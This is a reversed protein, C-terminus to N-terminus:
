LHNQVQRKFITIAIEIGKDEFMIVIHGNM